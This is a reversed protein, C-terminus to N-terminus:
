FIGSGSRLTTLANESQQGIFIGSYKQYHCFHSRSSVVTINVRMVVEPREPYSRM